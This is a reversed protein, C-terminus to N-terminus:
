EIENKIMLIALQTRDRLDLKELISTLHNKVTGESVFMESAIEKNSQGRAIRRAIEIERTTMKELVNNKEADSSSKLHKLLKSAALPEIITGGSISKRIAEMITEPTADKLLYGSAGCKLSEYIEEDEMFTTLIIIHTEPYQKKIIETAEVGNMIPMRIDMLMVDPRIDKCKFLAEEGNAATWVVVLDSQTGIIMNLGQLILPQDDVLAVKIM